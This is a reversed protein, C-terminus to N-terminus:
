WGCGTLLNLLFGTQQASQFKTIKDNPASRSTHQRWSLEVCRTVGTFLTRGTDGTTLNTLKAARLVAHGQFFWLGVLHGPWWATSYFLTRGFDAKVEM